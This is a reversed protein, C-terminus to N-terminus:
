YQGAPVVTLNYTIDLIFLFGFVDLADVAGGFHLTHTGVSLPALMVFYGDGVVLGITGEPVGVVNNAPLPGITFLPSQVRYNELNQLATGDVECFLSEPDILDAWFDADARMEEETVLGSEFTSTEVDILPFFLAKGTPIDCDRTVSGIITSGEVILTFTGGLFWVHGEQGESVDATDFLPHADVPMSFLWQWHAASWEGYSMGYANSGVPLVGPTDNNGKGAQAVPSFALVVVAAALISVMWRAASKSTTSRM